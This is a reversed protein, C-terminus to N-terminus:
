WIGTTLLWREADKGFNWSFPLQFLHLVFTTEFIFCCQKFSYRLCHLCHRHSPAQQQKTKSILIKLKISNLPSIDQSNNFKLWIYHFNSIKSPVLNLHSALRPLASKVYVSDKSYIICSVKRGIDQTSIHYKNNLYLLCRPISFCGWVEAYM